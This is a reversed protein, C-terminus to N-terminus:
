KQYIIAKNEGYVITVKKTSDFSDKFSCDIFVNKGMQKGFYAAHSFLSQKDLIFIDAQKIIEHYFEDSGEFVNIPGAIEIQQKKDSWNFIKATGVEKLGDIDINNIKPINLQHLRFQLVYIKNKSVCFEIQISCENFIYKFNETIKVLQAYLKENLFINQKGSKVSEFQNSNLTYEINNVKYKNINFNVVGTPGNIFEQYFVNLVNYNVPNKYFDNEIEQLVSKLDSEKVNFKSNLFGPISKRPSTRISNFKEASYELSIEPININEFNNKLFMLNSYKGGKDLAEQNTNLLSVGVTCHEGYFEDINKNAALKVLFNESLKLVEPDIEFVNHGRGNSFHMSILGNVTGNSIHIINKDLTWDSSQMRSEDFRSALEEPCYGEEVFDSYLRYHGMYSCSFFYFKGDRILYLGTLRENHKPLGIFDCDLQMRKEIPLDEMEKLNSHFKNINKVVKLFTAVVSSYGEQRSVNPNDIVTKFFAATEESFFEKILNNNYKSIQKM